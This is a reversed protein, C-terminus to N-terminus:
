QDAEMVLRAKGISASMVRGAAELMSNPDETHLMRMSAQALEEPGHAAITVAVQIIAGEVHVSHIMEKPVDFTHALFGPLAHDQVCLSEIFCAGVYAHAVLLDVDAKLQDVREQSEM